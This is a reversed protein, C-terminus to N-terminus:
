KLKLISRELEEIAKKTNQQYELMQQDSMTPAVTHKHDHHENHKHVHEFGEVELLAGEWEELVEALSDAKFKFNPLKKLSDLQSEIQEQIKLSELHITNADKLLQNPENNNTCSLPLGVLLLFSIKLKM